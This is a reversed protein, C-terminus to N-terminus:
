HGSRALALSMRRIGKWWWHRMGKVIWGFRSHSSRRFRRVALRHFPDTVGSLKKELIERNSEDTKKYADVAQNLVNHLVYRMAIRHRLSQRRSRERCERHAEGLTILLSYVHNWTTKARTMSGVTQRVFSFVEPLEILRETRLLVQYTFLNDEHLIGPYFSLGTDNLFKKRLFLLQSRPEWWDEQFGSLLRAKGSVVSPPQDGSRRHQGMDLKGFDTDHPVERYNFVIVDTDRTLALHVLTEITEPHIADDQDVFLVFDGTAEAVGRNRSESLGRNEQSVLRFRSDSGAYDAVIDECNDPSGDDVCVVDLHPYSQSAISDLAQGLFEEGKFMPVVVTVTPLPSGSGNELM